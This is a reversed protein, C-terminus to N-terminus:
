FPTETKLLVLWFLALKHTFDHVFRCYLHGLKKKTHGGVFFRIQSSDERTTAFVPDM